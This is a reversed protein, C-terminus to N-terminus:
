PVASCGSAGSFRREEALRRRSLEVYRPELEVGICRRDLRAAAVATTGSGMFCDLVVDGPETLLRIVRAPLEVPFKAEHDDNQRVSPFTWVGRSGWERWERRSLRSRDVKTVGPKWFLYIYEFEDVARYSLSAWRSNEWCADKVWVRRDYAHFGAAAAWEEVLGGVIRIRTQSDYKGGRVNNGNLRRDITQESCGLREALQYRNMEPHDRMAQLVMERTVPHRRAGVTEASIRPMSPDRFCLIDAINVVLFGGPKIVPWHAAIVDRLLAQWDDFGLAAEYSKGVFYPPSWVSVAVSGGAIRPVLERADGEHLTDVALAEGAPAPSSVAPRLQEQLTKPLRDYTFSSAKPVAGAAHQNRERACLGGGPAATERNGSPGRTPAAGACAVGEALFDGVM